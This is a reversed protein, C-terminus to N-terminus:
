QRTELDLATVTEFHEVLLLAIDGHRAGVDLASKRGKPLMEMLSSVRAKRSFDRIGNAAAGRVKRRNNEWRPM